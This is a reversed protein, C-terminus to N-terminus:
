NARWLGSDHRLIETMRRTLVPTPEVGLERITRDRLQQYAALAEAQRGSRYLAIMLQEHFVERFPHELALEMAAGLIERHRGTALASDVMAECVALRAEQLRARLLEGQLGLQVGAFPVGRWLGLAVRAVEVRVVDSRELQQVRTALREFRSVDVAIEPAILLRYGPELSVAQGAGWRRLDQRLRSVHAQLANNATAPVGEPWLEDVLSESDVVHNARALLAVLLRTRL